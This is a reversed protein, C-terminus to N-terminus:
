VHKVQKMHYLISLDNILLIFHKGIGGGLLYSVGDNVMDGMDLRVIVRIFRNSILHYHIFFHSSMLNAVSGTTEGNLKETTKVKTAKTVMGKPSKIYHKEKHGKNQVGVRRLNIFSVKLGRPSKRETM